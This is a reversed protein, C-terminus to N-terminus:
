VMENATDFICELLACKMESISYLVCYLDLSLIRCLIMCIDCDNRLGLAFTM